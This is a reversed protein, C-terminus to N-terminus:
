FINEPSLMENEHLYSLLHMLESLGAAANSPDHMLIHYKTKNILENAENITKADLFYESVAKFKKWDKALRGYEREAADWDGNEIAPIVKNEIINNYDKIMGGSYNDYLFWPIMLMLLCATSIILNKM